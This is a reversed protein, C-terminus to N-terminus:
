IHILSLDKDIGYIRANKTTKDLIERTHGGYGLTADIYIGNEDTILQQISDSKLVPIHLSTNDM